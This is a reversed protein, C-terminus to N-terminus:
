PVVVAGGFVLVIVTFAGLATGFTVGLLFAWLADSVRRPRIELHMTSHSM